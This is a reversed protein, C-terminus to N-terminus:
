VCLHILDGFKSCQFVKKHDARSIEDFRMASMFKVLIIGDSPHTKRHTGDTLSVM